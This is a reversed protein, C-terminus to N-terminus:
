QTFDRMEKTKFLFLSEYGSITNLLFFIFILINTHGIVMKWVYVIRRLSSRFIDANFSEIIWLFPMQNCDKLSVQPSFKRFAYKMLKVSVELVKTSDKIFQFASFISFLCSELCINAIYWGVFIHVYPNLISLRWGVAKWM